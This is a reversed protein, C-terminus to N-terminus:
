IHTYAKRKKKFTKKTIKDDSQRFLRTKLSQKFPITFFRKLRMEGGQIIRCVGFAFSAIRPRNLPTKSPTQEGKALHLKFHATKKSM